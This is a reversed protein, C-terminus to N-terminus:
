PEGICPNGKVGTALEKGSQGDIAVSATDGIYAVTAASDCIQVATTLDSDALDTHLTVITCAGTAEISQVHADTVKDKVAGIVDACASGVATKTGAPATTTPNPSPTAGSGSCGSLAGSAAIAATVLAISLMRM